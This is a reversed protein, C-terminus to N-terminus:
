RQITISPTLVFMFQWWIEVIIAIASFHYLESLRTNRYAKGNEASYSNTIRYWKM